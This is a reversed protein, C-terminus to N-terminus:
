RKQKLAKQDLRQESGYSIFMKTKYDQLIGTSKQTNTLHKM